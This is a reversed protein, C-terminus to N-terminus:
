LAMVEIVLEGNVAVVVRPVIPLAKKCVFSCNRLSRGRHHPHSVKIEFTRGNFPLFLSNPCDLWDATARLQLEDEAELKETKVDADQLVWM